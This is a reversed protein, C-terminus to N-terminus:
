RRNDRQRVDLQLGGTKAGGEVASSDSLYVLGSPFSVDIWVMSSINLGTNNFFVTCNMVDGPEVDKASVGLQVSISPFAAVKPVLFQFFLTLFFTTALILVASHIMRRHRERRKPGM